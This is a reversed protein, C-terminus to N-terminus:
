PSRVGLHRILNVLGIGIAAALVLGPYFAALSVDVPLSRSTSIRGPGAPVRARDPSPPVVPPTSPADFVPVDGGLEPALPAGGDPVTPLGGPTGGSGGAVRNSVSVSALGLTVRARLEKLGSAVEPPAAVNTTIRLGAATVGDDAEVAPILEITTGQAALATLLQGLVSSLDLGLPVDTGLVSLM